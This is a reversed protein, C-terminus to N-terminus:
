LAWLTLDGKLIVRNRTGNSGTPGLCTMGRKTNKKKKVVMCFNVRALTQGFIKEGNVNNRHETVNHTM